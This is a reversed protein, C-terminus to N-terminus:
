NIPRLEQALDKTPILLTSLDWEENANKTCLHNHYEAIWRYKEWVRSNGRFAKLKKAVAKRHTKLQPRPDEAEGILVELYNVFARGDRDRLLLTAPAGEAALYVEPKQRQVKLV